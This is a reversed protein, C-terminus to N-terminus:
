ENNKDEELDEEEDSDLGPNGFQIDINSLINEGVSDLGRNAYQIDINSLINEGVPVLGQNGFEIDINSLINEGVDKPGPNLTSCKEIATFIAQLMNLDDPIFLLTHSEEEEDDNSSVNMSNIASSLENPDEDIKDSVTMFICPEPFYNVDHSIAQVSISPYMLSFGQGSTSLWCLKSKSVYLTGKGLCKSEFFVRTNPQVHHLEETPAPFNRLVVM